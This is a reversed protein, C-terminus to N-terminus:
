TQYMKTLEKTLVRVSNLAANQDANQRLKLSLVADNTKRKEFAEKLDRKAFKIRITQGASKIENNLQNVELKMDAIQKYLGRNERKFSSILDSASSSSVRPSNIPPDPCQRAQAHNDCYVPPEPDSKSSKIFSTSRRNRAPPIPCDLQPISFHTSSISEGIGSSSSEFSAEGWSGNSQEEQDSSTKRRQSKESMNLFGLRDMEEILRLGDEARQLTRDILMDVEYLTETRAGRHLTEVISKSRYRNKM